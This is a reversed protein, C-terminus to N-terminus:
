TRKNSLSGAAATGVVIAVGIALILASQVALSQLLGRAIALAATRSSEPTRGVVWDAATAAILLNLLGAAVLAAGVWGLTRRRRQSIAVAVFGVVLTVLPLLQLVQLTSLAQSVAQLRDGRILEIQGEVSQGGEGLPLLAVLQGLDVFLRDGPALDTGSESVFQTLAAHLARISSERLDGTESSTVIGAIAGKLADRVLQDPTSDGLLLIGLLRPDANPQGIAAQVRELMADTLLGSIPDMVEPSELTRGVTPVFHAPDMVSGNSWSALIAASGLLFTAFLALVVAANRLRHLSRQGITQGGALDLGRSTM